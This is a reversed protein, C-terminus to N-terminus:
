KYGIILQFLLISSSCYYRLLVSQKINNNSEDFANSLISYTLNKVSKPRLYRHGRTSRRIIFM